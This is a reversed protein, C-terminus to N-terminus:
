EIVINNFYEVPGEESFWVKDLETSFFVSYCHNYLNSELVSSEYIGTESNFTIYSYKNGFYRQNINFTSDDISITIMPNIIANILDPFCNLTIERISTKYLYLEEEIYEEELDKYVYQEIKKNYLLQYGKNDKCNVYVIEDAHENNKDFFKWIQMTDDICVILEGETIHEDTKVDNSIMNKDIIYNDYESINCAKIYYNLLFVLKFLCFIIYAILVALLCKKIIKKAKKNYRTTKREYEIEDNLLYEISVGFVKSIEKVKEIEPQSQETEWKSIAQRSVNIKDGFEEQSLGKEKRLKIIKESLRM